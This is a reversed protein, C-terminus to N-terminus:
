IKWIDYENITYESRVDKELPINYDHNMLFKWTIIM